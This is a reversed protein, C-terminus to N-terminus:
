FSAVSAPDAPRAPKENRARVVLEPITLSGRGRVLDWILNRGRATFLLDRLTAQQEPYQKRWMALDQPRINWAQRRVAEVTFGCEELLALAQECNLIHHQTPDLPSRRPTFTAFYLGGPVLLSRVKSIFEKPSPVVQITEYSVAVDFLAPSEYTEASRCVYAVGPMGYRKKAYEITDSSLDVGVVERAGANKLIQCGYGSGCAIDLVRKDRSVKAATEYNRTFMRVLDRTAQTPDNVVEDPVLRITAGWARKPKATKRASRTDSVILEAADLNAISM